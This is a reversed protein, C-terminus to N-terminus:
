ALYSATTQTMSEVNKAHNIDHNSDFNKIKSEQNLKKLKKKFLKWTQIMQVNIIIIKNPDDPNPIIQM